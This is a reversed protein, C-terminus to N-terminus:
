KFKNWREANGRFANAALALQEKSTLLPPMRRNMAHFSFIQKSCKRARFGSAGGCRAMITLIRKTLAAAFYRTGYAFSKGAQINAGGGLADSSNQCSHVTPWIQSRDAARYNTTTYWRLPSM